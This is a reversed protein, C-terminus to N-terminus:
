QEVEHKVEILVAERTTPTLAAAKSVPGGAIWLVQGDKVILPLSDRRPGPIGADMMVDSVKRSGPAGLPEMRDGPKRCRIEVADGLVDADFYQRAPGCCSKVEDLTPVPRPASARFHYDGHGVDGPIPLTVSGPSEAERVLEVLDRGAYLLGGGHLSWRGGTPATDIYHALGRVQQFDAEIGLDTLWRLLVRGRLAPPLARFAARSIRQGEDVVRAHAEGALGRLLQDDERAMDALRALAEEVEPNFEACLLPLLTNRVRNRVFDAGENSPDERWAIGEGRLWARAEERAVGLLPRIVPLGGHEGVPPIGALGAPGTGRAIRMLLTEAQDSRTHGTAIVDCGHARATVVLFAYREARARMEFSREDAGGRHGLERRECVCPIGLAQAQARVWEADAASGERAGHDLHAVAVPFGLRLLALLLAMSDGGGSCAVLIRQGPQAMGHRTMQESVTELFADRKM